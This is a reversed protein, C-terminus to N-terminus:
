LIIKLQSDDPTGPTIKAATKDATGLTNKEKVTAAFSTATIGTSFIIASAVILKKM